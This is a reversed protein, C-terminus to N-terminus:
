IKVHKVEFEQRADELWKDEAQQVVEIMRRAEYIAIDYARNMAEAKTKFTTEDTGALISAVALSEPRWNLLNKRHELNEILVELAVVADYNLEM